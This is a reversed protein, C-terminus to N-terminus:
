LNPLKEPYLIQHALKFRRVWEYSAKFGSSNEKRKYLEDYLISIM